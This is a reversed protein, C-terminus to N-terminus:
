FPFRIGGLPTLLAFRERWYSCMLSDAFFRPRLERRAFCIAAAVTFLCRRCDPSVFPLRLRDLLLLLELRLDDLRLDELRLDDLRFDDLL